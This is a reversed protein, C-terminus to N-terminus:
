GKGGPRRPRAPRDGDGEEGPPPGGPGGHEGPPPGMQEAFKKLEDASLKGDKDADFSM